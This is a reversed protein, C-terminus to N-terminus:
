VTTRVKQYEQIINKFTSLNTHHFARKSSSDYLKKSKLFTSIICGIFTKLINKDTYENKASWSELKRYIFDKQDEIKQNSLQESMEESLKQFRDCIEKCKNLKQLIAM